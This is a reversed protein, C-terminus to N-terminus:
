GKTRALSNGKRIKTVFFHSEQFYSYYYQISKFLLARSVCLLCCVNQGTMRKASHEYPLKENTAQIATQSGTPTTHQRDPHRDTQESKHQRINGHSIVTNLVFASSGYKHLVDHHWISGYTTTHQRISGHSIVTNMVFAFSGLTATDSISFWKSLVGSMSISRLKSRLPTLWLAVGPSSAM